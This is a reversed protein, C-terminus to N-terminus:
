GPISAGEEGGGGEGRGQLKRGLVEREDRREEGAVVLFAVFVLGAGGWYAWGAFRGLVLMQGLLALPISMSLGMTALLPTTLLMAYAWSFDSVVNIAFNIGLMVWVTSAAPLEFVELGTVHFLILVPWSTLVIILGSFGFLLHVDLRSEDGVRVKLLTVYIGYFVAGLLAFLNGLLIEAASRALPPLDSPTTSSPSPPSTPPLPIPAAVDVKSILLVGLLSTAVSLAKLWSFREVRFIACFLLTWVSSTSGLITGSAVNTYVYCVSSLYNALFWLISFEVSLRITDYLGLKEGQGVVGGVQGEGGDGGEEEVEEYVGGSVRTYGEKFDWAKWPREGNRYGVVLEKVGGKLVWPILYVCFVGSGVYAVFFPKSYTDDSFLASTIFNSTVWLVVVMMLLAVGLTHRFRQASAHAIASTAASIAASTSPTLPM